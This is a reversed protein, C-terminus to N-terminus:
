MVADVQKEANTKKEEGKGDWGPLVYCKGLKEPLPKNLYVFGKLSLPV